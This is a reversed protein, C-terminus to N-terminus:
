SLEREANTLWAINKTRLFNLYMDFVKSNVKTFAYEEKGVKSLFKNQRGESYLGIPNFIKGYTGVKLYYQKDNNHLKTYALSKNKNNCIPNGEDDLSSHSGLVTYYTYESSDTEKNAKIHFINEKMQQTEKKNQKQERAM